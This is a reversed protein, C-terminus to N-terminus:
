VKKFKVGYYILGSDGDIKLKRLCGIVKDGENADIIQAYVEEKNELEIIGVKYPTFKEFEIPANHIITINKVTGKVGILRNREELSQLYRAANINVM